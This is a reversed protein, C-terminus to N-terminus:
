TDHANCNKRRQLFKKTFLKQMKANQKILLGLFSPCFYNSLKTITNVTYKLGNYNSQYKLTCNLFLQWKTVNEMQPFKPVKQRIQKVRFDHQHFIQSM